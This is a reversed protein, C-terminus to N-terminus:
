FENIEKYKWKLLPLTHDYDDYHYKSNKKKINEHYKYWIIM